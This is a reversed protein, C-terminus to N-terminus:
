RLGGREERAAKNLKYFLNLQKDYEKEKDAYQKKYRDALSTDAKKVIEAREKMSNAQQIFSITGEVKEEDNTAIFYGSRDKGRLSGIPIGYSKILEEIIGRVHRQDINLIKEIDQTGIPNDIGTPILMFVEAQLKSMEKLKKTM